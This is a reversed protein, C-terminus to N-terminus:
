TRRALRNLALARDKAAQVLGAGIQSRELGIDRLERDSLSRLITLNAQRERQAIVAAIWGNAVRAIARAFVKISRRISAQTSSFDSISSLMSV